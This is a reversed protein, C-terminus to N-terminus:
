RKTRRGTVIRGALEAAEVSSRCVVVGADELAKRQKALGQFDGDTGVLFAVVPLYGGDAESIRKAERIAPVLEGAPDPNSGLGLVVDILIVATEPDKAEQLIRMKRLTFDIMPHARGVVFEEAGMDICCNRKSKGTGDIRLKKDFPANSYIGGLVGSLLYQAEYCLTGGSFLGRIYRQSPSLHSAEKRAQAPLRGTRPPAKVKSGALQVAKMAAEELTKATLHGHVEMASLDTGLFNIVVPKKVKKLSALVTAMTKPGPPKSVIVIVETAPDDSLLRLAQLTTMGGVEDSLDAGGTGIAQSVGLGLGHVMSAVEQLGTGSASVIGIRGPRVANGFGLVKNNIISTGCDPGMMLLNKKRALTKLEREDARTVNSSFLFVNLGAGIAKVAERKAYTGPVSIVALNADPDESLAEQLDRSAVSAGVSVGQGSLLRETEALAANVSAPDEAEIAIILDDTGAQTVEPGHFGIDNLVRKNLQTGMVVAASKVGHVSQAGKSVRLLTISDRYVGKKVLTRRIM